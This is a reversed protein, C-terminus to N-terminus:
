SKIQITPPVPITITTEQNGGNIITLIGSAADFSLDAIYTDAINHGNADATARNALVAQEAISPRLELRYITQGNVTGSKIVPLNIPQNDLAVDIYFRGNDPTFYAFGDNLAASSLRSSDGRLIKFLAM